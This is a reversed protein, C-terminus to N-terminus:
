KFLFSILVARDQLKTPVIDTEAWQKLLQNTNHDHGIKDIIPVIESLDNTWEVQAFPTLELNNSLKQSTITTTYVISGDPNIWQWVCGYGPTENGRVINTYVFWGMNRYPARDPNNKIAIKGNSDFNLEDFYPNNWNPKIIEINLGTLVDEPFPEGNLKAAQGPGGRLVYETDMVVGSAEAEEISNYIKYKVADALEWEKDENQKGVTVTEGAPNTVFYIPNGNEDEGLEAGLEDFKAQVEPSIQPQPTATAEPTPSAPQTIPSVESTEGTPVIDLVESTQTPSTSCATLAILFAITLIRNM